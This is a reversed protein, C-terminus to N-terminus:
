SPSLHQFSCSVRLAFLQPLWLLSTPKCSHGEPPRREGGPPLGARPMPRSRCPNCLLLFRSRFLLHHSPSLSCPSPPCSVSHRCKGTQIPTGFGWRPIRKGRLGQAQGAVESHGDRQLELFSLRQIASPPLPASIRPSCGKCPPKPDCALFPPSSGTRPEPTQQAQTAATRPGKYPSLLLCLLVPLHYRPVSHTSTRRPTPLSSGHRRFVDPCLPPEGAPSPSAWPITRTIPFTPLPM